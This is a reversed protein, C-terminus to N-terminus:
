SISILGSPFFSLVISSSIMVQICKNKQFFFAFSKKFSYKAVTEILIVVLVDGIYPRIIDDHVYLAIYVEVFFLAFALLFYKTNFTFSM